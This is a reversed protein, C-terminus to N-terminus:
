LVKCDSSQKNISYGSKYITFDGSGCDQSGGDNQLTKKLTECPDANIHTAPDPDPDANM